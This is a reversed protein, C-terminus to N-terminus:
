TYVRGDYYGKGDFVPVHVIQFFKKNYRVVGFGQQWNMEARVGPVVGDIRCVCGPSYATYFRMGDRGFRTETAHEHRHIHGFVVSHSANKLIKMVTQGSDSGVVDGHMCALNDNIWVRDNPYNGHWNIDLAQLNLLHPVSLVPYRADVAKLGFAAPLQLMVLRQLRVEHNGEIYDIQSLPCAQRLEALFKAARNLSEQTLFQFDPERVFKESWDPMDLLDGLIVIRHPQWEYAFEVLMNLVKEDHFPVLKSGERRFGVHCDPIVLAFSLTSVEPQRHARPKLTFHVPAIPPIATQIAVKRKFWVKIQWLPVILVGNDEVTGTMVGEKFDLSKQVNSRFGEWENVVFKEVEWVNMDVGGLKLAYDLTPKERTKVVLTAENNSAQFM